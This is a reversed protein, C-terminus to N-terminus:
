RVLPLGRVRVRHEEVTAMAGAVLDAECLAIVRDVLEAFEEGRLGEIRV